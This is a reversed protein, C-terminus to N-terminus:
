GKCPTGGKAPHGVEAVSTLLSGAWKDGVGWPIEDEGGGARGLITCLLKLPNPSLLSVPQAPCDVGQQSVGALLHQCLQCRRTAPTGVM